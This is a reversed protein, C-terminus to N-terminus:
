LIKKFVLVSFYSVLSGLVLGFLVDSLWHVGLYIRSFSVLVIMSVCFSNFIVRGLSEFYQDFIYMIIIFFIATLAAHGSPFSPNPLTLVADLPRAINFIYKLIYVVGAGFSIASVFLLTHRISRILFILLAVALIILIFPFSFDFLTTLLYMLETLQATRILSFYNQIFIDISHM